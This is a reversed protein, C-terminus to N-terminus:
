GVGAKGPHQFCVMVPYRVSSFRCSLVALSVHLERCSHERILRFPRVSPSFVWLVPEAGSACTVSPPVGPSLFLQCCPVPSSVGQPGTRPLVRFALFAFCLSLWPNLPPPDCFILPPSGLPDELCGDSRLYVDPKVCLCRSSEATSM